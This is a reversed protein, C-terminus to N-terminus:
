QKKKKSFLVFEFSLTLDVIKFKLHNVMILYLTVRKNLKKKKKSIILTKKKKPSFHYSNFGVHYNSKILIELYLWVFLNIKKIYVPNLSLGKNSLLKKPLLKHGTGTLVPCTAIRARTWSQVCTRIRVPGTNVSWQVYAGGM